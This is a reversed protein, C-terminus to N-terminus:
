LPYHWEEFSRRWAHAVESRVKLSLDPHRNKRYDALSRVYDQMATEVSAFDPLALEEYVRRLQGIPDSELDEFAVECFRGAPISHRDEFFAEYMASYQRIIRDHLTGPDPQHFAFYAWDALVMRKTSQYVVYPERHVHVFRAEPFLDLLLRIRGTNPPSKLDLPRDDGLGLKKVVRMFAAKWQEVEEVAVDRFTLYRDYYDARSPFALGLYPSKLTLLLLASEEEFPVKAHFAVNDVGFRNQPLLIRGVALFVPEALLFTHPITVQSLRPFAFRPDASLLNHLHTTGSRYHGLVFLPPRVAQATIRRNYLAHELWRLPTSILSCATTSVAKPWRKPSVRFGNEALLRLWDGLTIGALPGPVFTRFFFERCIM